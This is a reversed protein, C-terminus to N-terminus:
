NATKLVHFSCEQECTVNKTHYIQETHGIIEWKPKGSSKVLRTNANTAMQERMM